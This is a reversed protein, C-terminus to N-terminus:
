ILMSHKQLEGKLEHNEDPEKEENVSETEGYLTIVFLSGDMFGIFLASYGIISDTDADYEIKNHIETGKIEKFLFEDLRKAAVEGEVFEMSTCCRPTHSFSYTNGSACQMILVDTNSINLSTSYSVIVEHEM